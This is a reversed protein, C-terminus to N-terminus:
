LEKKTNKESCKKQFNKTNKQLSKKQIKRFTKQINKCLNKKYKESLKKYIKASIKKCLNIIYIPGQFGVELGTLRQNEGIKLSFKFDLM